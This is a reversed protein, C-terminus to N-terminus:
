NIKSILESLNKEWGDVEVLTGTIIIDAGADVVAKATDPDRIGGGVILPVALGEKAAKIIHSPVPEPAGSGAELYILKMGLIEAAKAYGMVRGVDNRKILDVEGIEGVKMGPEIVIYGMSITELGMKGIFVSARQQEGIIFKPNKSNLLSMFYIADAHRSVASATTPFLIVPISVSEKIRIVTEDLLEQSIGTSGGIMIADTGLEESIKAVRAADSASQEDPDILTMHLKKIRLQETIHEWVNM